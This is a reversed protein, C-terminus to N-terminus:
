AHDMEGENVLSPFLDELARHFVVEWHFGRAMAAANETMVQLLSDDTLLLRVASILSGADADIVIGAERKEIDSAIPPVQTTIVPLHAALYNKIKGPDTFYTFSGPIPLYPALGISCSALMREVERHDEVYGHFSVNAEIGLRTTVAELEPRLPGDGIIELRLAPFSAVLEPLAELILQVGQKEVLWGMYALRHRDRIRLGDRDVPNAGMPIVRQPRKSNAAIPGIWPLAARADIMAANLNWTQDSWRVCLVEVFHYIWNVLRSEFRKPSFDIAYFVVKEVRKMAKLFLGSMANLPDLGVYLEARPQLRLSWYISMLFEACFRLADPLRVSRSGRKARTRSELKFTSHAGPTNELPHEITLLTGVRPRLYDQLAHNCGTLMVHSVVTARFKETPPYDAQIM